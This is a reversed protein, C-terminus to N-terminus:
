EIRTFWFSGPEGGNMLLMPCAHALRNSYNHWLWNVAGIIKFAKNFCLFAELLYQENWLRRDHLVWAEPYDCPTFIDHVHILVGPQVRGIINMYEFLVDGQPRIVHSSDIFLIDNAVLEEVVTTDLDEIKTRHVTVGIQELWPQEFPEVCIQECDYSQDEQKNKKIALQAMLTSQGSGIELIKKPKCYRIIDYLYEADGVEFANNKYGFSLASTVVSPIAILEDRFDFNALLALQGEQNLDLGNIIREQALSVRLDSAYVLPSYYHHRIPYINFHDLISTCLPLRGAWRSVAVNAVAGVLALPSILVDIISNSLNSKM